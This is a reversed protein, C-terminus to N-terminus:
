NKSSLCKHNVIYIKNWNKMLILQKIKWNLSLNGPKFKNKEVKVLMMKQVWNKLLVVLWDAERADIISLFHLLAQPNYPIKLVLAAVLFNYNWQILASLVDRVQKNRNEQHLTLLFNYRSNFKMYSKPYYIEKWKYLM